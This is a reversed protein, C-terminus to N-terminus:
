PHSLRALVDVGQMNLFHLIDIFIWNEALKDGDRRYLDVIRMDAEQSSATLGLFGGTSRMTLSPYGFFGGFHGEAVRCQHGNHRVFELGDEFPNTHGRRYGHHWASAGIGAPGFWCMDDTWFQSLHEAPSEVGGGVLDAVMANILELTKVGEEASQPTLLNGDQTRPAPTIVEVGTATPLPRLGAQQIVSLIDCYSATEVIQGGEIRHFEAFRLFAMKRTAPITLWNQDFNGLLGEVVQKLLNSGPEVLLEIVAVLSVVDPCKPGLVRAVWGHDDGFDDALTGGLAHQSQGVLWTVAEVVKINGPVGLFDAVLNADVQELQEGALQKVVVPEVGVGVGAVNGKAGVAGEHQVVVPADFQDFGFNRGGVQVGDLGPEVLVVVADVLSEQLETDAVGLARRDFM